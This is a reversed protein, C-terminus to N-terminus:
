ATRRDHQQKWEELSRPKRKTVKPGHTMRDSEPIAPLQDFADRVAQQHPTSNGVLWTWFRM